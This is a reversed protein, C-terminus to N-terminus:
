FYKELLLDRIKQQLEVIKKEEMFCNAEIEGELSNIDDLLMLKHYADAILLHLSSRLEYTHKILQQNIEWKAKEKEKWPEYRQPALCFNNEKIQEPTAKIWNSKDCIQKINEESLFRQKNKWESFKEANLFHIDQSTKEKNILWITPAIGTQNFLHSPLQLVLEIVGSNIIEIRKKTITPNLGSNVGSPLIILAKKRTQAIIKNIWCYNEDILNCHSKKVNFPINAIIYDSPPPEANLYDSNTFEFPLEGLDTALDNGSIKLTEDKEKAKLLFSGLGCCPDYLEGKPQLLAICLEVLCEPTYFQGLKLSQEQAKEWYARYPNNQNM